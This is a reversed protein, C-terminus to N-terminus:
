NPLMRVRDRSLGIADAGPLAANRKRMEELEQSAANIRENADAEIALAAKAQEAVKANAAANSREIEATWKADAAATATKAAEDVMSRVERLTLWGFLTVLAILALAALAVGIIAGVKQSIGFM